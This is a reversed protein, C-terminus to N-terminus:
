QLVVAGQETKIGNVRTIKTSNYIGYVLGKEM